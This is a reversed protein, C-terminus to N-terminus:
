EGNLITKILESADRVNNLEVKICVDGKTLELKIPSVLVTVEPETPTDLVPQPTEPIYGTAVKDQWRRLEKEVKEKASSNRKPRGIVANPEKGTLHYEYQPMKTMPDFNLLTETMYGQKILRCIYPSASVTIQERTYGLAYALEKRTKIMSLAGSENLERLRNFRLRAKQTKSLGKNMAEKTEKRFTLRSVEM